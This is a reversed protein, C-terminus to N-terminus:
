KGAQTSDAKEAAKEPQATAPKDQAAAAAPAAPAAAPANGKWPVPTVKKAGMGVKILGDVMVKEGTKLGSTVVWNAGQSQSIQVPRPAVSGDEAVVMVFNGKENRTVAQQPILAANDIQAQELRVRVYTGPLLLGEPNPLEARVSVQGTSPDVSLDTFLLKGPLPYEKGDDLHVHIKVGNEGVKALKGSTVAERMRMIDSASQTVNVYLPNIQQITALQTADGQGVLAGETVLARGIRGSIPATVSAYGLNVNANTVAAKGAAVQALAAKENAIATDYEQKSIANAEVLPKYRRATAAAQALNAEAQALTAQASQLNAKYPTNDIQFLAQGAKVDSGEQFLRKQVIGAARARVQAIRSAELRGPLESILPVNQLEVTVVGVEPPKAQAAAQAKQQDEKKDSCAALGLAALLSLSIVAARAHSPAFPFQRQQAQNKEYM